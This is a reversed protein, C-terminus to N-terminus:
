MHQLILSADEEAMLLHLSWEPPPNKKQPPPNTKKVEHWSRACTGDNALVSGKLAYCSLRGNTKKTKEAEDERHPRTRM